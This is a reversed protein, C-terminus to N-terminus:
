KLKKFYQFFESDPELLLLDNDDKFAQRYAIL